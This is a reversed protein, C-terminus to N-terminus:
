AQAEEVSLFARTLWANSDKGGVGEGGSGVGGELGEELVPVSEFHEPSCSCKSRKLVNKESEQM